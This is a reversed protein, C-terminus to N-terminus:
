AELILCDEDFSPFCIIQKGVNEVPKELEQKTYMARLNCSFFFIIMMGMTLWTLLIIRSSTGRLQTKLSFAWGPMEEQM